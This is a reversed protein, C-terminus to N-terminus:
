HFLLLLSALILPLILLHHGNCAHHALLSTASSFDGSSTNTTLILVIWDNEAGAGAGIYKSDNVYKAYHDSETYNSLVINRDLKPVCVPMVVGDKTTNMNIKCKKVLKEFNPIKNSSSDGEPFYDSANECPQDELEEAM